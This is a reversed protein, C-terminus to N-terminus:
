AGIAFQWIKPALYVIGSIVLFLIFLSILVKTIRKIARVFYKTKKSEDSEKGM